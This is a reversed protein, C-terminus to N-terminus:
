DYSVNRFNMITFEAIEETSISNSDLLLNLNDAAGYLLTKIFSALDPLQDFGILKTSLRNYYNDSKEYIFKKESISYLGCYVKRIHNMEPKLLHIAFLYKETDEGNLIIIEKCLYRRNDITKMQPINKDNNFMLNTTLIKKKM